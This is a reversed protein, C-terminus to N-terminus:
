LIVTRYAFPLLDLRVAVNVIALDNAVDIALLKLPGRSGDPAAFELRYTTPELAYQSVVHYNTVALGDDSVLFGSGLSSQRGAADVLALALAEEGDWTTGSFAEDPAAPAEGPQGPPLGAGDPGHVM